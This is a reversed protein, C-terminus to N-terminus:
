ICQVADDLFGQRHCALTGVTALTDVVFLHMTLAQRVESGLQGGPVVQQIVGLPRTGSVGDYRRHRSGKCAFQSELRRPLDRCM